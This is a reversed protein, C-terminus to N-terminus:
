YWTNKLPQPKSINMEPKRFRKGKVMQPQTRQEEIHREFMQREFEQEMADLDIPESPASATGGEGPGLDWVTKKPKPKPGRPKSGDERLGHAKHWEAETMMGTSGTLEPSSLAIGRLKENLERNNEAELAWQEELYKNYIFDLKQKLEAMEEKSFRQKRTVASVEEIVEAPQPPLPLEAARREMSRQIGSRAEEQLQQPSKPQLKPRGSGRKTIAKSKM